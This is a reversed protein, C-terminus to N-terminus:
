LISREPYLLFISDPNMVHIGETDQVKKLRHAIEEKAASVHIRAYEKMVNIIAEQAIDYSIKGDIIAEFLDQEAELMQQATPIKVETM